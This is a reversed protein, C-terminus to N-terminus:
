IFYESKLLESNESDSLLELNKELYKITSFNDKIFVFKGDELNDELIPDYDVLVGSVGLLRDSNDLAIVRSTKPVIELLWHKLFTDNLRKEIIEGGSLVLTHVRKVQYLLHSPKIYFGKGEIYIDERKDSVIFISNKKYNSLVSYLSAFSLINMDDQIYYAYSDKVLDVKLQMQEKNIERKITKKYLKKLNNNRKKLDIREKESIINNLNYRNIIDEALESPYIEEILLKIAKVFGIRSSTSIIKGNNICLDMSYNLKAKKIKKKYVPHTVITKQSGKINELLFTSSAGSAIVKKALRSIETIKDTFKEDDLLKDINSEGQCLFLLDCSNIDYINEFGGLKLSKNKSLIELDDNNTAIRINVGEIQRFIEYAFALECIDIGDYVVILLDM